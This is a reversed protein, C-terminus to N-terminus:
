NKGRGQKASDLPKRCQPFGVLIVMAWWASDSWTMGGGQGRRQGGRLVWVAMEVVSAKKKQKAFVGLEKKGWPRPVQGGRM